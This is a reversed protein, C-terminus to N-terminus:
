AVVEEVVKILYMLALSVIGGVAIAVFYAIVLNVAYGVNLHVDSVSPTFDLFSRLINAISASATVEIFAGLLLVMTGVVIGSLAYKFRREEKRLLSGVLLGVSASIFGFATFEYFTHWFLPPLGLVAIIAFLPAFLIDMNNRVLLGGFIGAVTATTFLPIMAILTGAGVIGGFASFLAGRFAVGINNKFIQYVYQVMREIIPLVAMMSILKLIDIAVSVYYGFVDHIMQSDIFSTALFTSLFAGFMVAVLLGLVLSSGDGGLTNYWVPAFLLTFIVGIVITPITFYFHVGLVDFEILNTPVLYTIFSYIPFYILMTFIVVNFLDGFDYSLGRRFIKALKDRCLTLYMLLAFVNVM